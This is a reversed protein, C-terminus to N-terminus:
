RGAVERAADAISDALWAAGEGQGYHARQEALAAETETRNFEDCLILPFIALKCIGDADTWTAANAVPSAETLGRTDMLHFGDDPFLLWVEGGALGSAVIPTGDAQGNLYAAASTAITTLAETTM